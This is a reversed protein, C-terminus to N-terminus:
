IWRKQGCIITVQSVYCMVCLMQCMVDSVQCMVCLPPNVNELFILDRPRVTRALCHKSSIEVSSSNVFSNILLSPTQLVAGAVGPRNIIFFLPSCVNKVLHKYIEQWLGM